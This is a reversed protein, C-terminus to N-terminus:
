QQRPGIYQVYTGLARGVYEIGMCVFRPSVSPVADCIYTHLYTSVEIYMSKSTPYSCCFTLSLSLFLSLSRGEMHRRSITTVLYYYTTSFFSQLAQELLYLPHFPTSPSRPLLITLVHIIISRTQLCVYIYLAPWCSSTHMSTCYTHVTPLAHTRGRADAMSTTTGM